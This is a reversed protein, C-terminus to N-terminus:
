GVKTPRIVLDDGMVGPGVCSGRPVHTVIETLPKASRDADVRAYRCDRVTSPPDEEEESMDTKPRPPFHVEPVNLYTLGQRSNWSFGIDSMPGVYGEPPSVLMHAIDGKDDLSLFHPGVTFGAMRAGVSVHLHWDDMGVEITPLLALIKRLSLKM